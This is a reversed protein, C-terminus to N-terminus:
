FLQFKAGLQVSLRSLDAVVGETTTLKGLGSNYQASLDIQWREKPRYVLGSSLQGTWYAQQLLNERSVIRARGLLLDGRELLRATLGTQISQQNWSLGGGARIALKTGLQLDYSIQIPLVFTTTEEVLEANILLRQPRTFRVTQPRTVELESQVKSQNGAVELNFTTTGGGDPQPRENQQVYTRLILYQYQSNEQSRLIGTTLGFKGYEVRGTLGGTWIMSNTNSRSRLTGAPLQLNLASKELGIQPGIWYSVKPPQKEFIPQALPQDVPSVTTLESFDDNNLELLNLPSPPLFDVAPVLVDIAQSVEENAQSSQLKPSEKELQPMSSSSQLTASAITFLRNKLTRKAADIEKLQPINKEPYQMSIAAAQPGPPIPAVAQLLPFSGLTFTTTTEAFFTKGIWIGAVLSLGIMSWWFWGARRRKKEDEAELSKSLRDWDGSLTAPTDATAEWERLRSAWNNEPLNEKM